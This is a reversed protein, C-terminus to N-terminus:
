SLLRPSLLRVFVREGVRLLMFFLEILPRQDLSVYPRRVYSPRAGANLAALCGTLLRDDVMLIASLPVHALEGITALGDPFPKKAVGSIFRIEPFHGAFWRRREDTPKNSLIFLKDPGFVAACRRLWEEAEPLPAPFGHPALVGDFDLALAAIGGKALATPDLSRISAEAPTERLICALERRFRLGLSFGAWIHAGSM